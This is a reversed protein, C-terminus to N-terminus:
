YPDTGLKVIQATRYVPRFCTRYVCVHVRVCMGVCVHGSARMCVLWISSDIWPWSRTCKTRIGRKRESWWTRTRLEDLMTTKGWKDKSEREREKGWWFLMQKHRNSCRVPLQHGAKSWQLFSFFLDEKTLLLVDPNLAIPRIWIHAEMSLLSFCVQVGEATFCLISFVRVCLCLFFLSGERNENNKTVNEYM